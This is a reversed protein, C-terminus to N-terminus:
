YSQQPKLRTFSQSAKRRSLFFFFFELSVFHKPIVQTYGHLNDGIDEGGQIAEIHEGDETDATDEMLAVVMDEMIVVVTDEM